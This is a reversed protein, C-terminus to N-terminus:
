MAPWVLEGQREALEAADPLKKSPGGESMLADRIRFMQTALAYAIFPVNTAAAVFTAFFFRLSIGVTYFPQDPRLLSTFGKVASVYILAFVAVFAFQFWGCDKLSVHSLLICITSIGMAAMLAILVFYM